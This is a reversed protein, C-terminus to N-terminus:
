DKLLDAIRHLGPTYITKPRPTQATKEPKWATLLQQRQEAPDAKLGIHVWRGHEHICQDFKLGSQELWQCVELPTMGRVTFDAALGYLHASTRSGRLRPHNNLAPPRYGSSIDIPGLADRIPQLVERCLRQLNHFIESDPKVVVPIGYKAAISSRTFEHLYFNKSLQIKTM